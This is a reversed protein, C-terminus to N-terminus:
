ELDKTNKCLNKADNMINFASVIPFNKIILKRKSATDKDINKILLAKNKELRVREKELEKIDSHDYLKLQDRLEVLKNKCTDITKNADKKEASYKRLLAELNSRNSLKEALKKDLKSIQQTYYRKSKNLNELAEDILNLQALQYVSDEITNGSNDDFYDELKEGDFFFYGEIDQPFESKIFLNPRELPEDGGIDNTIVFESNPPRTVNGKNDRSFVLSRTINTKIGYADILVVTVKVEFSGGYATENKTISNYIVDGSDNSSKHLEEEYLCWTIANLLNTKGAGNTGEIVTFNKEENLSFNIDIPGKYQRYNEIHISHIKM